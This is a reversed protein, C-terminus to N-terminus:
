RLTYHFPQAQKSAPIDQGSPALTLRPVETALYAALETLAAAEAEAILQALSIGHPLLRTLEREHPDLM